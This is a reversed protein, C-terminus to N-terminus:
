SIIIDRILDIKDNVSGTTVVKGGEIMKRIYLGVAPMYLFMEKITAETANKRRGAPLILLPRNYSFDACYIDIAADKVRVIAAYRFAACGTLQQATMGEYTTMYSNEEWNGGTIMKSEKTQSVTYHKVSTEDLKADPTWFVCIKLGNDARFFVPQGKTIRNIKIGYYDFIPSKKRVTNALCFIKVNNRLRIITSLDNLYGEIFADNTLKPSRELFEEFIITTVKDYNNGKYKLWGSLSLMSGVKQRKVGDKTVERAIIESNYVTLEKEYGTREDFYPKITAIYKKAKGQLVDDDITRLTAFEEGTEFWKDICHQLIGYSKGYSRMGFIIYVDANVALLDNYNVVEMLQGTAANKVTIPNYKMM